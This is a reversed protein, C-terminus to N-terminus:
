HEDGQRIGVKEALHRLAETEGEAGKTHVTVTHREGTAENVASLLLPGDQGDGVADRGGTVRYGASEIQRLIDENDLLAREKQKM